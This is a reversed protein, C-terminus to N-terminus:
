DSLLKAAEESLFQQVERLSSYRGIRGGSEAVDAQQHQVAVPEAGIASTRIQDAGVPQQQGNNRPVWIPATVPAAVQPLFAPTDARGNAPYVIVNGGNRGMYTSIYRRQYLMDIARGLQEPDNRISSYNRLERETYRGVTLRPYRMPNAVAERLWNLLKQAAEEDKQQQTPAYASFVRIYEFVYWESLAIAAKMAKESIDGEDGEFYHFLAALRSTIQALKRFFSKINDAYDACLLSNSIGDKFLKWYQKAQVSLMLVMRERPAPVPQNLIYLQRENFRDLLPEPADDINASVGFQDFVPVLAPLFRGLLGTGFANKGRSQMYEAFQSEQTMISITLRPAVPRRMGSVLGTGRGEGSWYDCVAAPEGFLPGKLTPGGDASLISIAHNDILEDRLGQPSSDAMRINRIVPKVPRRQEHLLREARLREAEESGQKAARYEKTLRRDDDSWIKMEAQFILMKEALADEQQRELKAVGRLFLQELLSKGGSSNSLTFLYLSVPAPDYGPCQVNVYNQVTASVAGLAAHAAMVIPMNRRGSAEKVAEAIITPLADIPYCGQEIPPEYSVQGYPNEIIPMLGGENREM